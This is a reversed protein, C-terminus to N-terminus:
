ATWIEEMLRDEDQGTYHVLRVGGHQAAIEGRAYDDDVYVGEGGHLTRIGRLLSGKQDPTMGYGIVHHELTVGMMDGLILFVADMDAGSVFVVDCLGDSIMGMAVHAPSLLTPPNEKLAKLYRKTKAKHLLQAKEVDNGCLGPLWARWPSGWAANPMDIGIAAYASKVAARTDVLTGDVDFSAFFM